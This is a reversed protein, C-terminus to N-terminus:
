GFAVRWGSRHHTVGCDSNTCHMADDRPATTNLLESLSHIHALSGKVEAGARGRKRFSNQLAGL